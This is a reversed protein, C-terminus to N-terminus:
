EFTIAIKYYDTKGVSAKMIELINLFPTTSEILGDTKIIDNALMNIASHIHEMGNNVGIIQLNKNFAPAIDSRINSCTIDYGYIAIKGNNKLLNILIDINTNIDIHCICKDAMKGSTIEVIKEFVDCNKANITYYVGLNTALELREDNTDIIIAISQYYIAAQAILINQYSAGYLVIYEGKQTDLKTLVNIAMAIDEVFLVQDDAVGEPIPYISDTPVYVYDGLYGDTHYSRIKVNGKGDPDYPSLFVKRGQELGSDYPESIYAVASRAPVIPYEFDGKGLFAASDLCSLNAKILKVKVFPKSQLEPEFFIGREGLQEPNKNNTYLKFENPKTLRWERM